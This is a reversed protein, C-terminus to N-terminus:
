LLNWYKLYFTFSIGATAILFYWSKAALLNGEKLWATIVLVGLVVSLSASFKPLQLLFKVRQPLGYLIEWFDSVIFSFYLGVTLIINSLALAITLEKLGPIVIISSLPFTQFTIQGLSLLLSVLFTVLCISLVIAQFKVPEYWALKEFTLFAWDGRFLHIRGNLEKFGIYDQKQESRFLLPSVEIWRDEPNSSFTLTKDNNIKLKIEPAVGLLVGLKDLSKHAYQNLRYTGPLERLSSVSTIPVSARDINVKEQEQYYNELFEKRFGNVLQGGNTNCVLFFGLNEKPLLLFLSNYGNLRGVKEIIREGQFFRETFGYTAGALAPNITFKQSHMARLTDKNLITNEKYKGEKQHAILFNAMDTPTASLAGAPYAQFYAFPRATFNGKHYKYGLALSEAFHKPLPQSFTSHNMELPKFIHETVYDNFSVETIQEVIHGALTMGVNGYFYIEGPSYLRSTLNQELFDKLPILEGQSHTFAGIGWGVDFGDTHTLIDAFTIPKIYSDPVLLKKDLFQNINDNLKLKEQEALQMIATATILKSVSGVRFLTQEPIVPIEKELNAYGYGQSFLIEGEKVLVLAAGPINYEVIKESIFSDAFNKIQQYKSM